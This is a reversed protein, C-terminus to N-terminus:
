TTSPPTPSRPEAGPEAPTSVGLGGAGPAPAQASADPGTLEALDHEVYVDELDTADVHKRLLLYIITNACFFFSVVFGLVLAAVLSVWLWVLAAGVYEAGHLTAWNIAPQVAGFLHPAPWLADLKGRAPVLGSGDINMLLGAALHAAKLMLCVFFRVFLYCAGGYVAALLSYFGMRWPRGIVYSFSRSIADFGDSGEVAITPYMLNFGGVLGVLVLAIVFGGFLALVLLLGAVVEGLWPIAGILGGVAICVGIIATVVLPILPAAFFSAFRQLSFQLARFAGIREERAAQLAAIRCIAGGMIAWVSLGWLMLLSAFITHRCWLWWWGVCWQRVQERAAPVDQRWVLAVAAQELRAFGFEAGAAFIGRPQALAALRYAHALQLATVLKERHRRADEEERQRAEDKAAPDAVVLREVNAWLVTPNTGGSLLADQVNRYAEDLAALDTDRRAEQEKREADTYSRGEFDKKIAEQRREYRADAIGAAEKLAAKYQDRVARLAQGSSIASANAYDKLSPEGSLVATLLRVNQEQMAPRLDTWNGRHNGGASMELESVARVSGRGGEASVIVQSVVQASQPTLWDLVWGGLFLAVVGALGLLMKGPQIAMRFSKFLHLFLLRSWWAQDERCTTETEVESM